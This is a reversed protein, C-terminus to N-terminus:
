FHPIFGKRLGIEFIIENKRNTLKRALLLYMYCTLYSSMFTHNKFHRKLNFLCM